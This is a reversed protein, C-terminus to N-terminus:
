IKTCVLIKFNLIILTQSAKWNVFTKSRNQAIKIFEYKLSSMAKLDFNWWLIELM